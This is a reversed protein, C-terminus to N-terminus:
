GAIFLIKKFRVPRNVECALARTDRPDVIEEVGFKNATKVPSRVSEFQDLLDAMLEDRAELSDAADLRRKYAAEIGGELPLSGWDGSPRSLKCDLPALVFWAVRLGAGDEPDAFVGGAVGFARRIIVTYIPTTASYLASMASAGHRITAAREAISGAKM